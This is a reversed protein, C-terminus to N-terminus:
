SKYTQIDPKIHYYYGNMGVHIYIDRNKLNVILHARLNRRPVKRLAKFSSGLERAQMEYLTPWNHVPISSLKAWFIFFKAFYKSPWFIVYGYVSPLAVQLLLTEGTANEVNIAMM